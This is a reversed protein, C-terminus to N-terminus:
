LLERLIKHLKKEFYEFSHYNLVYKRARNGLLKREKDDYILYELAESFKNIKDYGNGLIEGTYIGFQSVLNDPNQCSLVPIKYSFAELFSVPLAEHISTNVLIWSKRLIEDRTRGDILGLFKLNKLHRYKEIIPNMIDPFHSKGAVIFEVDPFKKALEFFLWPRKIPDLRGLFLVTPKQSKESYKIEKPSEIPNPLFEATLNDVGYLKKAKQALCRAQTAFIIERKFISSHKYLLKMTRKVPKEAVEPDRLGVVVRELEVTSIKKWDERTRPDQIWIVVPITPLLSLFDFFYHAYFEITMFVDIKEKRLTNYYLIRGLRKNYPPYLLVKTNYYYESKGKHPLLVIFEFKSTINTNFYECIYRALRGYGGFGGLKEHFFEDNCLGIRIKEVINHSRKINFNM